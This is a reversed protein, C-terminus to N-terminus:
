EGGKMKAGCNPCYNPMKNTKLVSSEGFMYKSDYSEIRLLLDCIPCYYKKRYWGEVKAIENNEFDDTVIEVRPLVETQKRYGANYLAQNEVAMVNESPAASIAARVASLPLVIDGNGDALAGLRFDIKDPDIYKIAM